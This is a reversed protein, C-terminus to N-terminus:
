PQEGAPGRYVLLQRLICACQQSAMAVQLGLAAQVYTLVAWVCGQEPVRLPEARGRVDGPAPGQTPTWVPACIIVIAAPLDCAPISMSLFGPVSVPTTAPPADPGKLPLPLRLPPCVTTEERVAVLSSSHTQGHARTSSLSVTSDFSGRPRVPLRGLRPSPCWTGPFVPTRTHSM